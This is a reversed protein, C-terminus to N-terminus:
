ESMVKKVYIGFLEEKGESRKLIRADSSPVRDMIVAYSIQANPESYQTDWLIYKKSDFQYEEPLKMMKSVDKEYSNCGYKMTSLEYIDTSLNFVECIKEKGAIVNGCTYCNENQIIQIPVM